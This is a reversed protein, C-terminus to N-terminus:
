APAVINKGCRLQVAERFKPRKPFPGGRGHVNPWANKRVSFSSGSDGSHVDVVVVEERSDPHGDLKRALGAVSRAAAMFVCPLTDFLQFVKEELVVPIPPENRM